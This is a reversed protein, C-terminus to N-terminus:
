EGKRKKPTPPAQNKAYAEGAAAQKLALDLAGLRIFASLSIGVKGWQTPYTDAQRQIYEREEPTFRITTIAKRDGRV